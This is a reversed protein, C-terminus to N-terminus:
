WNRVGSNKDGANCSSLRNACISYMAKEGDEEPKSWYSTPNRLGWQLTQLGKIFIPASMDLSMLIHIRM